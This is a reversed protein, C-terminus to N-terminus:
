FLKPLSTFKEKCGDCTYFNYSEETVNRSINRGVWHLTASEEYCNKRFKGVRPAPHLRTYQSRLGALFQSIFPSAFLTRVASLTNFTM